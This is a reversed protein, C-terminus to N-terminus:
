GCDDVSRGHLVVPFSRHAVAHKANGDQSYKQHAADGERVGPASVSSMGIQDACGRLKAAFPTAGGGGQLPAVAGCLRSAESPEVSTRICGESRVCRELPNQDVILRPVERTLRNEKVVLRSADHMLRKPEDNLWLPARMSSKEKVIFSAAEHMSSRAEVTLRFPKHMFRLPQDGLKKPKRM